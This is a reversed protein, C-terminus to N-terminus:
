LAVERGTSRDRVEGFVEEIGEAELSTDRRFRVLAEWFGSGDSTLRRYEAVSVLVAVPKGRRTLEVASGKEVERVLKALQNRAEIISYDRAM